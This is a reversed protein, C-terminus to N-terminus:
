PLGSEPIGLIRRLIQAHEKEMGALVEFARKVVPVKSMRQLNGYFIWTKEEQALATRLAPEWATREDGEIARIADFRAYVHGALLRELEELGMRGAAVETLVRRHEEEEELLHCISSELEESCSRSALLRERIDRYADIAEAEFALASRIVSSVIWRSLFGAM